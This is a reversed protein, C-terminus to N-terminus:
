KQNPNKGANQNPNMAGKKALRATKAAVGRSTVDGVGTTKIRTKVPKGNKMVTKYQYHSPASARQSIQITRAAAYVMEQIEQSLAATNARGHNYQLLVGESSQHSNAHNLYWRGKSISARFNIWVEQPVDYFNYVTGDRFVVTLTGKFPDDESNEQWGAAVTRPRKYNTSSTPVDTLAAPGRDSSSPGSFSSPPAFYKLAADPTNEGTMIAQQEWFGRDTPGLLGRAIDASEALFGLDYAQQLLDEPDYLARNSIGEAARAAEAQVEQSVQGAWQAAAARGFDDMRRAM